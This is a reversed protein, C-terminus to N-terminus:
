KKKIFDYLESTNTVFKGDMIDLHIYDTNTNELEKLFNTEKKMNLISTSIKM